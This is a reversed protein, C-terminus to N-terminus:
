PALDMFDLIPASTEGTVTKPAHRKNAASRAAVHEERIEM